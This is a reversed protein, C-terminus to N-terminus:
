GPVRHWGAALHELVPRDPRHRGSVRPLLQGLQTLHQHGRYGLDGSRPQPVEPLVPRVGRRELFRRLLATGSRVPRQGQRQQQPQAPVRGFLRCGGAPPLGTDSAAYGAPGAYCVDYFLDPNIVLQPVTGFNLMVTAAPAAFDNASTRAPPTMEVEEFEFLYRKWRCNETLSFSAWLSDM